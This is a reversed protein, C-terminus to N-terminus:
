VSQDRISMAYIVMMKDFCLFGNIEAESRALVTKVTNKSDIYKALKHKSRLSIISQNEVKLDTM